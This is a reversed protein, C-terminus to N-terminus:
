RKPTMTFTMLGLDQGPLLETDVYEQALDFDPARVEIRLPAPLPRGDPSQPFSIPLGGDHVDAKTIEDGYRTQIPLRERFGPSSPLCIQVWLETAAGVVTKAPMAADLRREETYPAPFPDDVVSWIRGERLRSYIVPVWWDPQNYVALRAVALAQDAFGDRLLERFFIPTLRAMTAMQVQGQMALVVPVGARVIQPGLAALAAAYGNGASECSALVVLRPRRADLSRLLDVLHIADLPAANGAEDELYLLPRDSKLTGHAVLYFIDCGLRLSDALRDWTTHRGPAGLIPLQDMGALATTVMQIEALSSIPALQYRAADAPAGIAVLARLKAQPRLIVPQYDDASLYRSLLLNSETALARGSRPDALTEWRLVQLDPPIQLRVRLQRQADLSAARAEAFALRAASDAFLAACLAAGYVAPDHALPLLDAQGLAVPFPGRQVDGGDDARSLRLTLGLGAGLPALSLELDAITRLNSMPGGIMAVRCIIDIM